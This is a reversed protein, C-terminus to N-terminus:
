SGRRYRRAARLGAPLRSGTWARCASAMLIVDAVTRRAAACAEIGDGAEAVVEIGPESELIKCLGARVLAQDDAILIRVSV